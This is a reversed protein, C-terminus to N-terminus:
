KVSVHEVVWKVGDADRIFATAQAVDEASRSSGLLFVVGNVMRVVFAGNLGDQGLLGAYIRQERAVDPVFGTAGPDEALTLEDFVKDVGEATRALQDARRRHEPKSVAGALLVNGNWALVSVGRFAIADNGKLNALVARGVSDDRNREARPRVVHGANDTALSSSGGGTTACAALALVAVLSLLRRHLPSMM